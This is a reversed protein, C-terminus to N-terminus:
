AAHMKLLIKTENEHINMISWQGNRNDRTRSEIYSLTARNEQINSENYGL